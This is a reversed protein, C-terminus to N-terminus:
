SYHYLGITILSQKCTLEVRNTFSLTLEETCFKSARFFCLKQEILGALGRLSRLVPSPSLGTMIFAFRFIKARYYTILLRDTQKQADYIRM